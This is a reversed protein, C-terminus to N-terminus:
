RSRVLKCIQCMEADEIFQEGVIIWEHECDNMNEHPKRERFFRCEQNGDDNRPIMKHLISDKKNCEDYSWLLHATHCPCGDPEPLMHVCKSCYMEDYVMESTGNPFYGM